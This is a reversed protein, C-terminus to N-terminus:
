DNNGKEQACHHTWSLAHSGMSNMLTQGQSRNVDSGHDTGHPYPCFIFGTCLSSCLSGFHSVPPSLLLTSTGPVPELGPARTGEVAVQIVHFDEAKKRFLPLWNNERRGYALKHIAKFVRPLIPRVLASESALLHWNSKHICNLCGELSKQFYCSSVTLFVRKGCARLILGGAM